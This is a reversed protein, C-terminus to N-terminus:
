KGYEIDTFKLAVGEGFRVGLQFMLQICLAEITSEKELHTDLADFEDNLYLKSGDNTKRVVRIKSKIYIGNLPYEVIIEEDIAIRMLAIMIIKMNSLSPIENIVSYIM